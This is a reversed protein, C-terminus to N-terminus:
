AYEYFKVTPDLKQLQQAVTTLERYKAQVVSRPLEGDCTLNEPSLDSDIKDALRQRDAHSDLSYQKGKFISNWQNTKAVYANLQKMELEKKIMM